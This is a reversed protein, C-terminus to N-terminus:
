AIAARAPPATRPSAPASAAHSASRRRDRGTGGDIVDDGLRGDLVDNGRRGELVNARGDGILRDAHDSGILNEIGALM